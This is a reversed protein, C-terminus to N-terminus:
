QVDRAILGGLYCKLTEARISPSKPANREREKEAQCANCVGSRRLESAPKGCFTCTGAPLPLGREELVCILQQEIQECRDEDDREFADDWSDIVLDFFPERRLAAFKLRLSEHAHLHTDFYSM